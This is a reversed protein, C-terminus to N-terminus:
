NSFLVYLPVKIDLNSLQKLVSAAGANSAAKDGACSDARGRLYQEQNEKTQSKEKPVSTHHQQQEKNASASSTSGNGGGNGQNGNVGRSNQLQGYQIECDKSSRGPLLTSITNWCHFGTTATNYTANHYQAHLQLLLHNERDTWPPQQQQDVKHNNNEFLVSSSSSSTSCSPLTNTGPGTTTESSSALQPRADKHIQVEAKYEQKPNRSENM